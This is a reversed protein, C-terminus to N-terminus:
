RKLVISKSDAAAVNSIFKAFDLSQAPSYRAERLEFYRHWILRNGSVEMSLRFIGYPSEINVQSPLYEIGKHNAPLEFILSDKEYWPFYIELPTLRKRKGSLGKLPRSMFAPSFIYRTTSASSLGDLKLELQQIIEPFRKSSDGVSFGLIRIANSNLEEQLLNKNEEKTNNLFALREEYAGGRYASTITATANGLTDMLIFGRREVGAMVKNKEPTRILSGGANDIALAYRNLTRTYLYGAPAFSSTCELWVTDQPGPVCVIAHNFCNYSFDRFLPPPTTGSYVLTYYSDIGIANLLARTYESLAKCDGYGLKDVKAPSVPKWGGIGLKISVYRNKAQMYQYVKKIKEERSLGDTLKRIAVVTEEPIGELGDKLKAVWAGFSAWSSLDGAYEDMIFNVPAPIIAPMFTLFGAQWTEDPVATLNFFEYESITKADKRVHTGPRLINLEKIRLPCDDPYEIRIKAHQLSIEPSDLPQFIPLSLTGNLEVQWHYAVTFPYEINGPSYIRYRVDSYLSQYDLNGIDKFDSSRLIKVSKGDRNFLEGELDTIRCYKDYSEVFGAMSGADKSFVTIVRNYDIVIRHESYVKIDLTYDRIVAEAGTKLSDAIGSVAYQPSVQGSLSFSFLCFLIQFSLWLKSYILM